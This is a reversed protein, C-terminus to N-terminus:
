AIHNKGSRSEGQNNFLYIIVFFQITSYVSIQGLPNKKADQSSIWDGDDFKGKM